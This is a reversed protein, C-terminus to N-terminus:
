FNQIIYGMIEDKGSTFMAPVPIVTTRDQLWEMFAEPDTLPEGDTGNYSCEYLNYLEEVSKYESYDCCLAIVDIHIDEGMDDSLDDLYNYLARFGLNSFQDGRGYEEFLQQLQCDNDISVTLM